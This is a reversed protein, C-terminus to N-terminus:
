CGPARAGEDENVEIKRGNLVKGNLGVIAAKGETDSPMEVFGFGRTKIVTVSTVEGFVMFEQKLKEANLEPPIKRVCIFM